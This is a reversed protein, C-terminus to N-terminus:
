DLQPKKVTLRDRKAAKLQIKRQQKKEKMDGCHPYTQTEKKNTM